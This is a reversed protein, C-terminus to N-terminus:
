KIWKYFTSYLVSKKRNINAQNIAGGRTEEMIEEYQDLSLPMSSKNELEKENEKIISSINELILDEHSFSQACSSSHSPFADLVHEVNDNTESSKQTLIEELEHLVQNCKEDLNIESQENWEIPTKSYLRKWRSPQQM